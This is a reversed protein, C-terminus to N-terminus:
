SVGARPSWWRWTSAKNAWMWRQRHIDARILSADAALGESGVSGEAMCREVIMEFLKRM